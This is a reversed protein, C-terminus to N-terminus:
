FPSFNAKMWRRGIMSILFNHIVLDFLSGNKGRTWGSGSTTSAEVFACCTRWCNGLERHGRTKATGRLLPLRLLSISACLTRRSVTIRRSTPSRGNQGDEREGEGEGASVWWEREGEEVGVAVRCRGGSRAPTRLPHSGPPPRPPSCSPSPRCAITCIYMHTHTYMAQIYRHYM